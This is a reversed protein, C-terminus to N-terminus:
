AVLLLGALGHLLQVEDAHLANGPDGKAAGLVHTCQTSSSSSSARLPPNNSDPGCSASQHRNLTPLIHSCALSVPHPCIRKTILLGSTYLDGLLLVYM